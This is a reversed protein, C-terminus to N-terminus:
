TESKSSAIFKELKEEISPIDSKYTLDLVGAEVPIVKVPVIREDM